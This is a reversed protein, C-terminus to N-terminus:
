CCIQVRLLPVGGPLVGNGVNIEFDVDACLLRIFVIAENALISKAPNRNRVRKKGRLFYRSVVTVDRSQIFIAGINLKDLASMEGDLLGPRHQDAAM